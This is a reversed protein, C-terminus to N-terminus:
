TLASAAVPSACSIGGDVPLVVGTIYAAEDSALFLSAHAVDWATGQRGMPCQQDRARKMAAADSYFAAHHDLIMPTDILGPLVANARIGKDAYELAIARTLQNVAAKSASYAIWPVGAWRISALSSINVIVGSRQAEMIPLVYKATLFMSKINTDIVRDWDDEGTEVAGGVHAIGVNNHLVDIRGFEKMATRVVAEIEASRTVNCTAVRASGGEKAIISATEEAAARNIDIAFVTAGERAFLVATAKGNGWGPGISGAGFVLAIRGKLREGM